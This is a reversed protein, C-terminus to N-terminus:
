ICLLTLTTMPLKLLSYASESRSISVRGTTARITSRHVAVQSLQIDRWFLMVIHVKLKLEPDYNRYGLTYKTALVIQDRNKREKM